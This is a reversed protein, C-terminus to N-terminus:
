VRWTWVRLWQVENEDDTEADMQDDMQDEMEGHDNHKRLEDNEDYIERNIFVM